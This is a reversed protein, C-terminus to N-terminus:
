FLPTGGQANGFIPLETPRLIKGVSTAGAAHDIRAFVKIGRQKTAAELRDLTQGGSYPSKVSILGNTACATCTISMLASLVLAAVSKM